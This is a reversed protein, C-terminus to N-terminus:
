SNKLGEILKVNINNKMQEETDKLNLVNTWFYRAQIKRDLKWLIDGYHDNVIPDNPMLEVAKKLFIEAKLFDDILYHAWGISDIIYPDDSREAYARELMQLVMPFKFGMGIAAQDIEVDIEFEARAKQAIQDFGQEVFGNAAHDRGELGAGPRNVALRHQHRVIRPRYLGSLPIAFTAVRGGCEGTM